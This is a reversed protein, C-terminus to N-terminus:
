MKHMGNSKVENALNKLLKIIKATAIIPFVAIMLDQAKYANDYISELNTMPRKHFSIFPFERKFKIETKTKM